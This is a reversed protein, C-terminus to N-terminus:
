TPLLIESLEPDDQLSALLRAREVEIVTSSELARVRSLGPRGNLMTGEGTFMGPQLVVVLAERPGVDNVVELSGNTLLYFRVNVGGVGVLVEGRAVLRERGIAALRHIQSPTLLPAPVAAPSERTDM